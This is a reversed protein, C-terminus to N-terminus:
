TLDSRMKVVRAPVGTAIAGDPIDRTVVSGAGIVAGRGIKVGDLVIVGVGLWADDDIVIGGKTQLPQEKILKDPAFGHNYPYFACYPAIQVGNGIRIRGKYASFQCRPQIHTDSGITLGGGAGTEIIIDKHIHSGKGIHVHGEDGAQYIIVREGIFVNDELHVAKHSIVADPSIYSKSTIHALYTRGKYPPTFLTAIWTAIRGSIGLGAHKMWFRAWMRRFKSLMKKPLPQRV